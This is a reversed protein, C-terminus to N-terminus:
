LKLRDRNKEFVNKPVIKKEVLEEIRSYPRGGIIAKARSEGIGGLEDLDKLSATNINIQNQVMGEETKAKIFTDNQKPIYIKIGDTLKQSLNIYRELWVRDAQATLGGAAALADIVRSDPPLRYVGPEIVAGAAEIVVEQIQGDVALPQDGTKVVEIQDSDTMASLGFSVLIGVGILFGTLSVLEFLRRSPKSDIM